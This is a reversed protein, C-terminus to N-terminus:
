RVRFGAAVARERQRSTASWGLLVIEGDGLVVYRTLGDLGYLMGDGKPLDVLDPTVNLQFESWHIRRERARKWAELYTDFDRGGGKIPGRGPIEYDPGEARHLRERADQDFIFVSM